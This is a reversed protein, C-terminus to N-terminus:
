RRFAWYRSLVFTQGAALVLAIVLAFLPWLGMYRLLVVFILENTVFGALATIAFRTFSQRVTTTTDKFSFTRHGVFSVVFAVVFGAANAVEPWLTPAIGHHLGAFVLLHTLAAGAGVAIFWLGQNV